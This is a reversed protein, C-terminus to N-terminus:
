RFGSRVPFIIFQIQFVLFLFSKLNFGHGVCHNLKDPTKIDDNHLDIEIKDGIKGSVYEM